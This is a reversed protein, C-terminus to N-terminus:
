RPGYSVALDRVEPDRDERARLFAADVRADHPAVRHLTQIAEYRLWPDSHRRLIECLPEIASEAKSDGLARLAKKRVRKDDKSAAVEILAEVARPDQVTGLSEAASQRVGSDPDKLARILPGIKGANKLRALADAAANRNEPDRDSLLQILATLANEGASERLANRAAVHLSDAPDKLAALQEPLAESGIVSTLSELAHERLRSDKQGYFAKRLTSVTAPDRSSQLARLAAGGDLGQRRALENLAATARPDNFLGLASVASSSCEKPLYDAAAILAALAEENRIAGLAGVINHRANISNRDLGLSRLRRSLAPVADPPALDRLVYAANNVATAGGKEIVAILSPVAPKGIARLARGALSGVTMEASKTEFFADARSWTAKIPTDDGLMAALGPIAPEAAPGFRILYGAAEAREIRNRSSLQRVLADLQSREDPSLM